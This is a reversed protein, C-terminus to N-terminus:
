ALAIDLPPPPLTPPPTFATRATHVDRKLKMKMMWLCLLAREGEVISEPNAVVAAAAAVFIIIVWIM